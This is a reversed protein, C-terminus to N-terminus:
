NNKFQLFGLFTKFGFIDLSLFYASVISFLLSLVIGIRLVATSNGEKVQDGSKWVSLSKLLLYGVILEIHKTGFAFSYLFMELVGSIIRVGDSWKKFFNDGDGLWYHLSQTIVLILLNGLFIIGIAVLLNSSAFIGILFLMAGIVLEFLIFFPLVSLIGDIKKKNNINEPHASVQIQADVKNSFNENKGM